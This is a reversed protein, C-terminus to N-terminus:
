SRKIIVTGASRAGPPSSRGRRGVFSIGGRGGPARPPSCLSVQCVLPSWDPPRLAPQYSPDASPHRAGGHRSVPARPSVRMHPNLDGQEWGGGGRAPRGRGAAGGEAPGRGTRIGPPRSRPRPGKQQLEGLRQVDPEDDTVEGRRAFEVRATETQRDQALLGALREVEAGATAQQREALARRLRRGRAPDAEDERDGVPDVREALLQPAPPDNELRREGIPGPAPRRHEPVRVAVLQPDAARGCRLRLEVGPPQPVARPFAAHRHLATGAGPPVLRLAREGVMGAMRGVSPPAPPGTTRDSRRGYSPRM